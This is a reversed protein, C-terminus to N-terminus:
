PTLLYAQGPQTAFEQVGPELAPTAVGEPHAVRLTNKSRVRCTQGLLSRIRAQALLGEQWDLDVEFGGRARLGKVAGKAWAPPLAPLLHLEGLHSQLLM